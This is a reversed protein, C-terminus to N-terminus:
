DFAICNHLSPGMVPAVRSGRSQALAVSKIRITFAEARLSFSLIKKGGAEGFLCVVFSFSAGPTQEVLRALKCRLHVVM